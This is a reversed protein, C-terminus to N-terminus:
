APASRRPRPISGPSSSTWTPAMALTIAPPAFLFEILTAMGAFYAGTGGLGARAHAFPGGAHPISTALETFSFIFTTCM